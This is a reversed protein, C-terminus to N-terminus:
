DVVGPTIEAGSLSNGARVQDNLLRAYDPGLDGCEPNITVIEKVVRPIEKEVVRIKEVIKEEIVIQGEAAAVTDRWKQEEESRAKEQAELIEQQVENDRKNYGATHISKAAVGASTILLVALALYVYIKM